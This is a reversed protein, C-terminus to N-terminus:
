NEGRLEDALVQLASIYGRWGFGCIQGRAIPAIVSTHRWDERAYINSLHVEIVPLNTDVLADRLAYSYHTLAGANIIIGKAGQANAQIYDIIQGEHNSQYSIVEVGLKKAETQLSTEIDILTKGGYIDKNRKGLMNLNPGNIVLIKM